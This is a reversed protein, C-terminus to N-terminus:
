HEIFVIPVDSSWCLGCNGCHTGKPAGNMADVQEPCVVADGLRAKETPFDITFCGWKGGIGSHRIAFRYDFMKRAHAITAGLGVGPHHATFGFVALGPYDRLLDFWLHLYQNSYFDGLVHLRVLVKDHKELLAPIEKRLRAELEPGANWRHSQPMSNGYCATWLQCSRPCTAREELTLSVIHAGKLWGQHVDGGLKCNFAGDKLVTTSDNPDSVTFPFATRGEVAAPHDDSMESRSVGDPVPTINFRRRDRVRKVAKDASKKRRELAVDM